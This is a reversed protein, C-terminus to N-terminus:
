GQRPEEEERGASELWPTTTISPDSPRDCILRRAGNDFAGRTPSGIISPPCVPEAADSLYMYTLADVIYYPLLLLLLYLLGFILFRQQPLYEIGKKRYVYTYM